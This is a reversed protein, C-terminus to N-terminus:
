TSYWRKALATVNMSIQVFYPPSESGHTLSTWYRELGRGSLKVTNIVSQKLSFLKEKLQMTRYNTKMYTMGKGHFVNETASMWEGDRAKISSQILTSFYVIFLPFVTIVFSSTVGIPPFGIELQLHSGVKLGCHRVSIQYVYQIFINLETYILMTLWFLHSPGPNVLLAYLFLVALYVMTLLSFNWLFVFVFCFYCIADSNSRVKSWCYRALKSFWQSKEKYVDREGISHTSFTEDIHGSGFEKIGNGNNPLDNEKDETSSVEKSDSDCQEINFFSVINAMAQNGLSHVQSVGDGILQVASALPNEKQEKGKEIKLGKFSESQPTTNVTSEELETIEFAPSDSSQKHIKEKSGENMGRGGTSIVTPCPFEQLHSNKRKRVISHNGEKGDYSYPPDHQLQDVIKQERSIESHEQINASSEIQSITGRQNNIECALCPNSYNQASYPESLHNQLHCIEAKMKEVQLHRKQKHDEIERSHQLQATKWAARKEQAHLMADIKEAELYNLVQDFAKLQFIFSQISLLCFIVIDVLASRSTIRFGYDYKYLGVVGYLFGPMSYTSNNVDGFFPSQFILSLVILIFNYLRLFRFIRNKKKMITQRMRFFVLAFGLYGLHLIDYELTGTILVLILVVDLLHRYFFLRFHDFWTWEAKTEFSIDEWVSRDIRQSQLHHYSDSGIYGASFNARLKFSAIFFVLFYTVLMQRDDVVVGLWCKECYSYHIESSDRCNHCHVQPTDHHIWHQFVNGLALYEILLICAFMFVCVPWLLHLARQNLLICLGLVAVYFLSISNLVVFSALLFILMNMELGFLNFVNEAWFKLYLKVTHLQADYREKRLAFLLKKNWKHSERSSGWFSSFSYEQPSRNSLRTEFNLGTSGSTVGTDFLSCPGNGLSEGLKGSDSDGDLHSKEQYLPRDMSTSIEPPSEANKKLKSEHSIFLHCPEEWKETNILSSPLQELWRFTNYQLMCAVIVLTKSRLGLEIGWFGNGFVQFGLWASLGALKQGPFMQAQSGWMQFLYECAILFGTYCTYFKAPFRSTKPFSTTFVLTILYVFGFVSVPSISAYFVALSLIKGSHWILFRKVFGVVGINSQISENVNGSPLEVSSEMREYRHLQMVVLIALSQWVNKFLSAGPKFGMNPYSVITSLWTQLSPFSSLVYILVF